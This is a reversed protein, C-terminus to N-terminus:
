YKEKDEPDKNLLSFKKRKEKKKKQQSSFVPVKLFWVLTHHSEIRLSIEVRAFTHKESQECVRWCCM